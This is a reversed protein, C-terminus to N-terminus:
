PTSPCKPSSPHIPPNATYTQKQYSLVFQDFHLNDLFLPSTAYAQLLYGRGLHVM